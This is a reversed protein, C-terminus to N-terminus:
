WTESRRACRSVSLTTRSTRTAPLKAAFALAAHSSCPGTMTATTGGYQCRRRTDMSKGHQRSQAKLHACSVPTIAFADVLSRMHSISVHTLLYIAPVHSGHGQDCLERSRYSRPSSLAQNCNESVSRETNSLLCLQAFRRFRFFSGGALLRSPTRGDETNELQKGANETQGSKKVTRKQPHYM